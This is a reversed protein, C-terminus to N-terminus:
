NLNGFELVSYTLFLGFEFKHVEIFSNSNGFPSGTKITPKESSVVTLKESSVVAFEVSKTDTKALKTASDVSVPERGNLEGTTSSFVLFLGSAAQQHEHLSSSLLKSEPSSKTSSLTLYILQPDNVTFSSS